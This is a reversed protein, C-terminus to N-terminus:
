RTQPGPVLHIRKETAPEVAARTYLLPFYEGSLWMQALDCYHPNDPDGSEGPLNM